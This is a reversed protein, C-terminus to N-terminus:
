VCVCLYVFVRVSRWLCNGARALTLWVFTLVTRDPMAPPCSTLSAPSVWRSLRSSGVRGGGGQLGLGSESSSERALGVPVLGERVWMCVARGPKGQCSPLRSWLVLHLSQVPDTGIQETNVNHIMPGNLCIDEVM